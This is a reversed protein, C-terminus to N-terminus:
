YELLSRKWKEINQKSLTWSIMVGKFENTLIRKQKTEFNYLVCNTIVQLDSIWGETFSEYVEPLGKHRNIEGTQSQYAGEFVGRLMETDQKFHVIDTFLEAKKRKLTSLIGKGTDTLIFCVKDQNYSISVLWNKDYPTINAHEVSNACIEILNDYVPPYHEEEGILYSFSEKVSRALKTPNIHGKGIMYMQNQFNKQSARALNSKMVNLFGSEKVFEMADLDNPFNGYCNVGNTSLKNILSLLWCIAMMDIRTVNSLDFQISLANQKQATVFAENIFELSKEINLIEFQDPLKATVFYRRQQYNKNKSTKYNNRIYSASISNNQMNRSRVIRHRRRIGRMIANQRLQIRKKSILKM